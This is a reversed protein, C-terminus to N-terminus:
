CWWNLPTLGDKTDYVNGYMWQDVPFGAAVADMTDEIADFGATVPVTFILLHSTPGDKGGDLWGGIARVRESIMETVRSRDAKETRLFLQVCVNGGRKVVTFRGRRSQNLEIEDGTAAGPAFGPSAAIRYRNAAIRTAPVLEFQEEGNTINALLEIEVVETSL